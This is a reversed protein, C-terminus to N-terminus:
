SRRTFELMLGTIEQIFWDASTVGNIVNEIPRDVYTANGSYALSWSPFSRKKLHRKDILTVCKHRSDQEISAYITRVAQAPGELIQAFHRGTCVLAGTVGAAGNRSISVAVIDDLAMATVCDAPVVSVYILRLM